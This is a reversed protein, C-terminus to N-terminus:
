WTGRAVRSHMARMQRVIIQEWAVKLTDNAAKSDVGDIYDKGAGGIM